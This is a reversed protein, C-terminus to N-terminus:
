KTDYLYGELPLNAEKYAKLGDKYVLINQFGLSLLIKAATISSPCKLDTCYTVITDGKKLFRKAQKSIEKLPLSIAGKIHGKEYQIKGRVDVLKIHSNYTIIRMIAGYGIKKIEKNKNSRQM